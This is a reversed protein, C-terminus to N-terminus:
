GKIATILQSVVWLFPIAWVLLFKWNPLQKIMLRLERILKSIDIVPEGKGKDLHLFLFGRSNACDPNES